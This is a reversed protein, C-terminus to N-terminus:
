LEPLESSWTALAERIDVRLTRSSPGGREQQPEQVLEVSLKGDRRGESRRQGSEEGEGGKM